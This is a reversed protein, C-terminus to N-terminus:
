AGMAGLQTAKMADSYATNENSSPNVKLMFSNRKEETSQGILNFAEIGCNTSCQHALDNEIKM